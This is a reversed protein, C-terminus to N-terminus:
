RKCARYVPRDSAFPVLAAVIDACIWIAEIRSTEVETDVRPEGFGEHKKPVGKAVISAPTVPHTLAVHKTNRSQIEAIPSIQYPHNGGGGNATLIPM